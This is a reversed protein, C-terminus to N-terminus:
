FRRMSSHRKECKKCQEKYGKGDSEGSWETVAFGRNSKMSLLWILDKFFGYYKGKEEENDRGWTHEVLKDAVPLVADLVVCRLSDIESNNDHNCYDCVFDISPLIDAMTWKSTRLVQHFKAVAKDQLGVLDYNISMEFVDVHLKLSDQISFAKKGRAIVAKTDTYELGVMGAGQRGHLGIDSIAYDQARFYQVLCDVVEPPLGNMNIFGESDSRHQNRFCELLGPYPQLLSCPISFTREGCAFKINYTSPLAQDTM